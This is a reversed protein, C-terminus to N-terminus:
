RLPLPRRRVKPAPQHRLLSKSNVMTPPQVETYGHHMTHLDLMFNALARELRAGQGFQVVFRAGSIKAAREFDLVGLKEGIEWHPLAAFAFTPKEGWTKVEVNEM